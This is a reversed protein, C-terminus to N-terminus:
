MKFRTATVVRVRTHSPIKRMLKVAWGDFSSGKTEQQENQKRFCWSLLVYEHLEKENREQRM